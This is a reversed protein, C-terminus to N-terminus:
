GSRGVGTATVTYRRSVNLAWTSHWVTRAANLKGKVRDGRTRVVVRSITGRAATVRIGRGPQRDRSGSAPTISLRVSNATGGARSHGGQGDPPTSSGGCGAVVLGITAGIALGALGQRRPWSSSSATADRM